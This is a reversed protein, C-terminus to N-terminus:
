NGINIGNLHDIEHQVCRAEIGKLKLVKLNREEDFFNVVIKKSRIKSVKMGPFSLCSEMGRSKGDRKVIVPNILVQNLKGVSVVIVRKLIGVQNAALGCGGNESMTIWMGKVLESVVEEPQVEHARDYLSPHGKLVLQM